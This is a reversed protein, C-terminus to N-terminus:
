IKKIRSQLKFSFTQFNDVAFGQTFSGGIFIIKKVSQNDYLDFRGFKTTTLETNKGDSSWPSFKFSGIKPKWGLINDYENTQPEEM